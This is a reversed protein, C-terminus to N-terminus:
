ITLFGLIALFEVVVLALSFILVSKSDKSTLFNKSSHKVVNLLSKIQSLVILWLDRSVVLSNIPSNDENIDSYALTNIM